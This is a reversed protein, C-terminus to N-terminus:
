GEQFACNKKGWLKLSMPQDWRKQVVSEGSKELCSSILTYASQMSLHPKWLFVSPLQLQVKHPWSSFSM